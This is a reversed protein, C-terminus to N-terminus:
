IRGRRRGRVTYFEREDHMKEYKIQMLVFDHMSNYYQKFVRRVM